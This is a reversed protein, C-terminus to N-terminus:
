VTCLVTLLAEFKRHKRREFETVVRNLSRLTNEKFWFRCMTTVSVPKRIFTFDIETPRQSKENEIFDLKVKSNTKLNFFYRVAKSIFISPYCNILSYTVNDLVDSDEIVYLHVYIEQSSLGTVPHVDEKWAQRGKVAKSSIYPIHTLRFLYTFILAQNRESIWRLINCAQVSYLGACFTVLKGLTPLLM